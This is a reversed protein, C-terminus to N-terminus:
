KKILMRLSNLIVLITSGEHAIVGAPLLVLGFVNSILLFLIVGVAFIMNQYIITRNQNSLQIIRNINSLNNNMFIVDATQLSVDTGSGMAAGIDAVALAPADNIGDGVMMVKGYKEQLEEIHRKKDTPLANCKVEDIGAEKAIALATKQNDGTLMVVHIGRSRLKEVMPKIDPRLTDKLTIFGILQQNLIIHVISQGQESENVLKPSLLHSHNYDFKGVQYVQNGLTLSMGKGPEEIVKSATYEHNEKLHDVIASALPHTSLREMSYVIDLIEKRNYYPDIEIATVKPEGSTITGTKDLVVVKIEALTELYNGGKVLIRHRAANSLTSLMAPAVSAVLACPSGVVLVVTGRYFADSWSLWGVLPPLIMFVAAMLIVIYVYWKEIKEILTQKKGQNEQADAVLAVIKAVVSETPDVKTEVLLPSNLNFTGAFVSDGVKKSVPMSEGTIAAQNISSSGRTILGDVPIQDGVKVIVVDGIKIDSVNVTSENGDNYLTATEPSLNLLASLEKKSKATAYGELVGSVAFIMILLAGEAPNGVIFAGIAALIMLIEVNLAKNEITEEVGEKAKFFGGILFSLGFLIVVPLDTEAFGSLQLIFAIGMLVISVVVFTTELILEKKNEM